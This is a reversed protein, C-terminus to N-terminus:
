KRFKEALKLANGCSKLTKMNENLLEIMENEHEALEDNEALLRNHKTVLKNHKASFKDYCDSHDHREKILKSKWELNEFNLAKREEQHSNNYCVNWNNSCLCEDM